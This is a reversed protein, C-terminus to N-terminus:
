QPFHMCIHKKYFCYRLVDKIQNEKVPIRKNILFELKKFYIHSFYVKLFNTFLQCNRLSRNIPNLLPNLLVFIGCYLFQLFQSLIAVLRCQRSDHTVDACSGTKKWANHSILVDRQLKM